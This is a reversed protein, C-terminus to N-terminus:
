RRPKLEASLWALYSANGKKVPVALIEPVTYSHYTKLTKELKGFLAAKTKILMMVENGIEKKGKWWYHSSVGPVINVCAALRKDLLIGALKDAEKSSSATSLVLLYSSL